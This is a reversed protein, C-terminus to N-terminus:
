YSKARYATNEALLETLRRPAGTKDKVQWDHNMTYFNKLTLSDDADIVGLLLDNGVRTEILRSLNYVSVEIISTEGEVEFVQDAGSGRSLRYTDTGTEGYLDDNGGNGTLLDDGAGAMIIDRYHTGSLQDNGASGQLPTVDLAALTDATIQLGDEFVFAEVRKTPDTYWGTVTIADALGAVTVSLDGNPQHNFTVDSLAIGAGFIVRDQSGQGSDPYDTEAIVDHGDGPRYHYEDSGLGGDLLDDGAGGWLTDNGGQGYLTDAAQGGYLTNDTDNGYVTQPDARFNLLFEPANMRSGDAFEFSYNNYGSTITAADAGNVKMRLAPQNAITLTSVTLNAASIDTAFRIINGGETDTILDNGSTVSLEYVDNGAGGLLLDRGAGGILTDDNAGGELTDDGDGGKLVDNGAGGYLKDAGLAGSLIDDGSGGHLSDAAAGGYLKGGNNDLELNLATTLSTGV